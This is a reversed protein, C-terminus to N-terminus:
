SQSGPEVSVEYKGKAEAKSAQKLSLEPTGSITHDTAVQKCIVM